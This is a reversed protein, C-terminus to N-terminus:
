RAWESTGGAADRRLADSDIVPDVRGLLYARGKSPTGKSMFQQPTM